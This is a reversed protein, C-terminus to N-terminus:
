GLFEPKLFLLFFRISGFISRISSVLFTAGRFEKFLVSFVMFVVRNYDSQIDSERGGVRRIAIGDRSFFYFIDLFFPSLRSTCVNMQPKLASTVGARNAGNNIGRPSLPTETSIKGQLFSTAHPSGGM